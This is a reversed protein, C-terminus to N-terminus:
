QIKKKENHYVNGDEDIEIVLEHAVFCLYVRYPLGPIRYHRIIEKAFIKMITAIINREKQISQDNKVGLNKRFENAETVGVNINCILKYALNERLYASKNDNIWKGMRRKYKKVQEKTPHKTGCYRKIKKMTAFCIKISQVM